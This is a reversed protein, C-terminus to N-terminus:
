PAARARPERASTPHVPRQAVGLVHPRVLPPMIQFDFRDLELVRFGAAAIAAVVDRNPHCGAALWGWPRELRDQWRALRPDDARVHQYFRLTGGPSLVRRTETLARAPDPVTCLVLSAVVTDFSADPFPLAEATGDVVQVTVPAARAAQTARARMGPGPELAVVRNANRYLPLNRGTGAGMELVEGTAQEVLRRRHDGGGLPDVHDFLRDYGGAALRQFLSAGHRMKTAAPGGGPDQLSPAQTMPIEKTDLQSHKSNPMRSATM